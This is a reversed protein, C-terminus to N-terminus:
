LEAFAIFLGVRHFLSNRSCNLFRNEYDHDTSISFVLSRYASSVRPMHRAECYLKNTMQMRISHFDLPFLFLAWPAVFLIQQHHLSANQTFPSTLVTYTVSFYCPIVISYRNNQEVCADRNLSKPTSTLLLLYHILCSIKKLEINYVSATWGLMLCCGRQRMKRKM